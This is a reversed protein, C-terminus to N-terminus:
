RSVESWLVILLSIFLSLLCLFFFLRTLAGLKVVKESSCAQYERRLVYSIAKSMNGFSNNLFLSPRGIKDWDNRNNEKLASLFCGFFYFYTLAFVLNFIFVSLGFFGSM